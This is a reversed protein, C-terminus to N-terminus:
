VSKKREQVFVKYLYPKLEESVKSPRGENLYKIVLNFDKDKKTEARLIEYDIPM